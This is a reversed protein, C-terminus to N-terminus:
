IHCALKGVDLACTHLKKLDRKKSTIQLGINSLACDPAKVFPIPEVLSYSPLSIWKTHLAKVLLARSSVGSTLPVLNCWCVRFAIELRCGARNAAMRRYLVDQPANCFVREGVHVIGTGFGRGVLRCSRFM